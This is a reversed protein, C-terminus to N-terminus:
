RAAGAAPRPEPPRPRRGTGHAAARSAGPDVITEVRWDAGVVDIAAQRLIEDSGGSVFLRPRRRQHLRPDPDNGDVGVVQANQSLHM